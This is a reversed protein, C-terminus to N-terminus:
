ITPNPACDSVSDLCYFQLLNICAVSSRHRIWVLFRLHIAISARVCNESKIKKTSKWVSSSGRICHPRHPPLDFLDMDHLISTIMAFCFCRYTLCCYHFPTVLADVLRRHLGRRNCRHPRDPGYITKSICRIMSITHDIWIKLASFLISNLPDACLKGNLGDACVKSAIQNLFNRYKPRRDVVRNLDGFVIDPLHICNAVVHFRHIKVVRILQYCTQLQNFTCRCGNMRRQNM